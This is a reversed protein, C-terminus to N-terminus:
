IAASSLFREAGPRRLDITESLNIEELMGDKQLLLLMHENAPLSRAAELIQRGTPKPDEIVLKEDFGDEDGVRIKYQDVDPAPKGPNGKAWEELDIEQTM